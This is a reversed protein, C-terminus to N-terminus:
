WLYTCGWCADLNGSGRVIGRTLLANPLLRWLVAGCRRHPRVGLPAEHPAQPRARSLCLKRFEIGLRHYGCTLECNLIELGQSYLGRIWSQGLYHIQRFSKAQARPTPHLHCVRKPELILALHSPIQIVREVDCVSHM